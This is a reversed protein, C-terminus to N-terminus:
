NISIEINEEAINGLKDTAKIYVKYDRGSEFIDIASGYTSLQGNNVKYVIRKLGALDDTASLFVQLHDPYVDIKNGLATKSGIPEVSFNVNIRPSVDDVVFFFEKNNSNGVKDFGTFFVTHLGSQDVTFSDEYKVENGDNIKYTIKDTGSEKDAATLKIRTKPAIFVTDRDRSFAGEFKQSLVPGTLDVYSADRKQNSSGGEAKNNVNDFAWIKVSLSGSNGKLYFPAEYMHEEGAGVKYHVTKVGAKNDMSTIKFKSRGSSYQVGNAMFTNGMIEEVLVPPTKDVYFTFTNWDEKNGVHDIAYFSLTYEGENFWSAKLPYKYPKIENENIRYFVGKVGSGTEENEIIITSRGSVVNEHKDGEIKISTRPNSKDIFIVEKNTEEANGVNDISYYSIKYEKEQTLDIPQDFKKFAAGDISYYITNVGSHADYADFDLKVSGSLYIRDDKRYGSKVGKIKTRPARSDAYIEFIIDSIPYVVKKTVTDVKSPTRVTNLGETDFYLPNTYGKSDESELIVKETNESDSTSLYLYVPLEKQIYLKGDEAKYLQKKHTIREQANATLVLVLLVISFLSRIM